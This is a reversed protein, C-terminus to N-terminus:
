AALTIERADAHEADADAVIARALALYAAHVQRQSRLESVMQDVVSAASSPRDM